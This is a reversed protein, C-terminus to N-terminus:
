RKVSLRLPLDRAKTSGISFCKGTM